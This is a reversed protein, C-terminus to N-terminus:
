PTTPIPPTYLRTNSWHMKAKHCAVCGEVIKQVDQMLKPWYFNEQVMILTKDQDFHGALGGGHAERIIAERLSCKPVRNNVGLFFVMM